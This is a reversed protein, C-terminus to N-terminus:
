FDLGCVSSFFGSFRWYFVPFSGAFAPFSDSLRNFREIECRFVTLNFSLKVNNILYNFTRIPEM